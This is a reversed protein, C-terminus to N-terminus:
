CAGIILLHVVRVEMRAGGILLTNSHSQFGHLSWLKESFLSFAPSFKHGSGQGLVLADEWLEHLPTFFMQRLNFRVGEGWPSFHTCQLTSNQQPPPHRRITSTTCTHKEKLPFSGLCSRQPASPPSTLVSPVWIRPLGQWLQPFTRSGGWVFKMRRKSGRSQALVVAQKPCPKISSEKHLLVIRRPWFM